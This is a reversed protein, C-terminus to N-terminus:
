NLFLIEEYIPKFIHFINYNITIVEVTTTKLLLLSDILNLQGKEM